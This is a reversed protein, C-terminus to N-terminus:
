RNYIVKANSVKDNLDNMTNVYMYQNNFTRAPKKGVIIYHVDLDPANIEIQDQVRMTKDGLDEDMEELTAIVYLKSQSARIEQIEIDHAKGQVEAAIMLSREMKEGDEYDDPMDVDLYPVEIEEEEMVVVVKPVEVMKTRTGVNVDAWDVDFEPLQGAETEVDVDVEPLETSQTKDIDCSLLATAAAISLIYNRM